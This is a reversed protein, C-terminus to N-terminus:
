QMIHIYTLTTPILYQSSLSSLYHNVNSKFLKSNYHQCFYERRIYKVFNKPFFAGPIFKRRVIQIRPFRPHNSYM